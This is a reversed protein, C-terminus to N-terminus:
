LQIETTERSSQILGQQDWKPYSKSVDNMSLNNANRTMLLKNRAFILQDLKKYQDDLNAKKSKYRPDDPRYLEDCSSYDNM